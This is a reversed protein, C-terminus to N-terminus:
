VCACFFFPTQILNTGRKRRSKVVSPLPWIISRLVFSCVNWFEANNEWNPLCLALRLSNISQEIAGDVVQRYVSRVVVLVVSGYVDRFLVKCYANKAFCSVTENARITEKKLYYICWELSQWTALFLGLALSPQKYGVSRKKKEEHWCPGDLLCHRTFYRGAPPGTSGTALLIM